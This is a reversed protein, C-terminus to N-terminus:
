SSLYMKEIIDKYKKYIFQRRVKLTPTLEGTEPSWLEDVIEFKRIREYSPRKSNVVEIIKRVEDKILSSKAVQRFSGEIGKERALRLAEEENLSILCVLYPKEDGFVAAAGILPYQQLEIEIPEAAINKGFSTVIINKKRGRFFIFGEDDMDVIDGTKFWGDPTFAKKTEEEDKYYGKMVSESKILLEGDEAIKVRVGPIPIGISGFKYKKERNVIVVSATETLGYGELLKIGAGTLFRAIHPPISAGGSICLRIRGGFGERMKSFVVADAIRYLISLFVPPPQQDRIYDAYICGIKEAFDFIKKKLPSTNAVRKMMEYAKEYIRPVSPFLTPKVERLNEGIKALSEAYAIAVANSVAYFIILRGFIHAFPLWAFIVDDERPPIVQNVAEVMSIINRHTLMVGKPLGTTGSTYVITALDDGRVAEVDIKDHKSSRFDQFTTYGEGLREGDEVDYVIVNKISRPLKANKLYSMKEVFIANAESHEIIFSITQPQVGPYIPVTVAGAFQIALDSLLWESRTNSLIAVKDGKRVGSEILASSTSLVINASERFNRIKWIGKSKYIEFAKMANARATRLFVKPITDVDSRVFMDGFM